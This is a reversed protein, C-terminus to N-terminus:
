GVRPVAPGGARAHLWASVALMVALVVAVAVLLLVLTSERPEAGDRSDTLLPPIEGDEDVPLADDRAADREGGRTIGAVCHHTITRIWANVARAHQPLPAALIAIYIDATVDEVRTAPVERAVIAKIMARTVPRALHARVLAAMAPDPPDAALLGESTASEDDPLGRSSIAEIARASERLAARINGSSLDPGSRDDETSM